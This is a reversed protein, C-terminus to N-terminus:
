EEVNIETEVVRKRHKWWNRFARWGGLSLAGVIGGAIPINGLTKTIIPDIAEVAVTIVVVAVGELVGKVGKEATKGADPEPQPEVTVSVVKVGEAPDPVAARAAKMAARQEENM